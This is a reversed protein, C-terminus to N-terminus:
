AAHRSPANRRRRLPFLAIAPLILALTTPEPVSALSMSVCDLAIGLRPAVGPRVDGPTNNLASIWFDYNKAGSGTGGATFTYSYTKWVAGSFSNKVDTAGITQISYESAYSAGGARDADVEFSFKVPEDGATGDEDMGAMCASLTYQQGVVLSVTNKYCSEWGTLYTFRDGYTPILPDGTPRKVLWGQGMSDFDATWGTAATTNGTAISMNNYTAGFGFLNTNVFSTTGTEFSGNSVIQADAPRVFVCLSLFIPICHRFQLLRM